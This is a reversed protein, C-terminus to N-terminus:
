LAALKDGGMYCRPVETDREVLGRQMVDVAQKIRMRLDATEVAIASGGGQGGSKRQQVAMVNDVLRTMREKATDRLRQVQLWVARM